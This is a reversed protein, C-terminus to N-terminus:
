SRQQCRCPKIVQSRLTSEVTQRAWWCAAPARL